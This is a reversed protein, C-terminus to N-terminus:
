RERCGGLRGLREDVDIGIGPGYAPNEAGIEANNAVRRANQRRQGLERGGM